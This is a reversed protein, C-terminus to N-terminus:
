LTYRGTRTSCTCCKAVSCSFDALLHSSDKLKTSFKVPFAPLGTQSTDFQQFLHTIRWVRPHHRKAIRAASSYQQKCLVGIAMKRFYHTQCSCYKLNMVNTRPRESERSLAPGPGKWALTRYLLWRRRM